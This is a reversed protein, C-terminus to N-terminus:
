CHKYVLLILFAKIHVQSPAKKKRKHLNKKKKARYSILM